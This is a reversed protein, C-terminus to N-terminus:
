ICPPPMIWSNALLAAIKEATEKQAAPASILVEEGGKIGLSMLQLASEADEGNIYIDGGAAIAMDAIKAAPRAHMGAIDKVVARLEYRDAAPATVSPSNQLAPSVSDSAFKGEASSKAAAALANAPLFVQISERAQEACEALSKGGQAAVAAAVAGEIFPAEALQVQDDGLIDLLSEGSLKSSGLDAFLLVAFGKQRQATVTAELRSFDTGLDGAATGGVPIIAVDNAMQKALDALGQALQASHSILVLSVSISSKM